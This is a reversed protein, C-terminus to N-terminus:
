FQWWVKADFWHFVIKFFVPVSNDSNVLCKLRRIALFFDNISIPNGTAPKVSGDLFSDDVLKSGKDSVCMGVGAFSSGQHGFRVVKCLFFDNISIPNGTAPKVSGDFFSDGVLKSGKDSICM